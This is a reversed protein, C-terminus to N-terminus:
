RKMRRGERCGAGAIRCRAALTSRNECSPVTPWIKRRKLACSLFLTPTMPRADAREGRVALRAMTTRVLDDPSQRRALLWPLEGIQRVAWAARM